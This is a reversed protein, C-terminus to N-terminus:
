DSLLFIRRHSFSVAKQWLDRHTGQHAGTRLPGPHLPEPSGWARTSNALMSM